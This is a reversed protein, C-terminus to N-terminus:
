PDPREALTLDVSREVGNRVVGISITDGPRTELALYSSLTSQDPIPRDDIRVVVDGGTPVRVGNVTTVDTAARLVGDAPTDPFVDTVMVGRATQLNNAEAVTPSVSTLTVGVFTHDYEDDEILAPFVRRALAASICFGVNEGGTSFIVGEVTGDLAVLPGGSNGPNLAADTQIADPISFGTPSPLARDVGSVIGRSVSADLGLPNGLAVVEAGVAPDSEALPLPTAYDPVDPVELVALDSYRDTGVVSATQWEGDSFQIEAADVGGVVHENTVLYNDDYVFGSGTGRGNEADAVSVLVVSDITAEYVQAYVSEGDQREGRPAADISDVGDVATQGNTPSSCGAFAGALATGTAALLRRRSVRRDTVDLVYSARRFYGRRVAVGATVRRRDRDGANPRSKHGERRRVFM